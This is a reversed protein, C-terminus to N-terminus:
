INLITTLYTKTKGETKSHYKSINYGTTQFYISDFHHQLYRIVDGNELLGRMQEYEWKIEDHM